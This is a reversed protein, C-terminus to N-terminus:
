LNENNEESFLSPFLISLSWIVGLVIMAILMTLLFAKLEFPIAFIFYFVFLAVITLIGIAVIKELNM